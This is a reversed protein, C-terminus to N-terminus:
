LVSSFLMPDPGVYAMLGDWYGLTGLPREKREGEWGFFVNKEKRETKEAKGGKERQGNTQTRRQGEVRSRRGGKMWGDMGGWRM